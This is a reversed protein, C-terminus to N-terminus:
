NELEALKEFFLEAFLGMLETAESANIQGSNYLSCVGEEFVEGLVKLENKTM